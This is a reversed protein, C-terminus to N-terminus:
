QENYQLIAYVSLVSIVLLSIYTALVGIRYVWKGKVFVPLGIFSCLVLWARHIVFSFGFVPVWVTELLLLGLLTLVPCLIQPMRGIGDKLLVAFSVALFPYFPYRYWGHGAESPIAFLFILLYSLFGAILGIHKKYSTATVVFFVIWGIYVWGDLFLRDTVLPDQFIKIFSGFSLDYRALQLKWLALFVDKGLAMGYIIFVSISLAASFVVGVSEKWKKKSLLYLSCAFPSAIWPIKSLPLLFSLICLVSLFGKNKREVYLKALGLSILFFPIFFNENQVIRSGVAASPFISYIGASLLGITSGYFCSAFFFVAGISIVGLILALPRIREITVDDFARIGQLRAFGGVILGFFPSHELYPTALFFSTGHPNIYQIKNKYAQHPSWSTPTGTDLISMGLFTWAYEDFTAGERPWVTLNYNRLLLGIVLIVGLLLYVVSKKSM